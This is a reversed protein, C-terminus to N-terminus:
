DFYETVDDADSSTTLYNKLNENIELSYRNRFFFGTNHM